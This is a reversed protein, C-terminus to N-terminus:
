LSALMRPLLCPLQSLPPEFAFSATGAIILLATGYLLRMRM